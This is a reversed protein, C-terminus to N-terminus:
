IMTNVVNNEASVTDTPLKRRNWLPSTKRYLRSNAAPLLFNINLKRPFKCKRKVFAGKITYLIKHNTFIIIHAYKFLENKRFHPAPNHDSGILRLFALSFHLVTESLTHSSGVASFYQLSSTCLASCSKSVSLTRSPERDSFQGIVESLDEASRM